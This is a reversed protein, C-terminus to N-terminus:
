RTTLSSTSETRSFTAARGPMARHAKRTRHRGCRGMAHRTRRGEPVLRDSRGAVRGRNSEGAGSTLARENEGNTDALWLTPFLTVTREMLSVGVGPRVVPAMALARGEMLKREGEMRGSRHIESLGGSLTEFVIAGGGAM